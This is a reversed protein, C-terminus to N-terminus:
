AVSLTRLSQALGFSGGAHQRGGSVFRVPNVLHVPYSCILAPSFGM